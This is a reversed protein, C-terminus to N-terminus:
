NKCSPITKCIKNILSNISYLRNEKSLNEEVNYLGKSIKSDSNVTNENRTGLYLSLKFWIYANVYDDSLYNKKQISSSKLLALKAKKAYAAGTSFACQKNGMYACNKFHVIAKEYNQTVGQGNALMLGLSYQVQERYLDVSYLNLDVNYTSLLKYAESYNQIKYYFDGLIAKCYPNEKLCYELEKVFDNADIKQALYKWQIMGSEFLHKQEIESKYGLKKWNEFLNNAYISISFFGILVIFINKKM